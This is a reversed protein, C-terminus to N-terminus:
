LDRRRFLDDRRRRGGRPHALAQRVFAELITTGQVSFPPKRSVGRHSGPSASVQIPEAQGTEILGQALAWLEGVTTAVQETRFGFRGEIIQALDM